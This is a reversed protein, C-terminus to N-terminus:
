GKQAGEIGRDLRIVVPEKAYAIPMIKVPFGATVRLALRGQEQVPSRSSSAFIRMALKKVWFYIIYNKEIL